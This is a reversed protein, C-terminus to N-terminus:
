KHGKYDRKKSRTKGGFSPKGSKSNGRDVSIRMRRGRLTARDIRKMQAESLEQDVQVVSFSPFIDIKGVASGQLGAEGTIAGVIGGPSVGDRRGVEIRYRKGKGTFDTRGKKRTSSPTAAEFADDMRDQAATSIEGLARPSAAQTLLAAAVDRYRLGEERKADLLALVADPITKQTSLASELVGTAKSLRVQEASPVQVKQMSSGTTREISRLKRVDRPTFFTLSQGERGARGTRGVRHVYQEDERPVEYNVVLGVRDVDIGRAAVDTAVLVDLYGRRLGDLLRERERQAVDGSIGAARFGRASLSLSVEEADKRTRVFVIAAGADSVALFRCLAEFRMKPQIVTYTQNITSVTSSPSSVEVRKAATLYKQAVKAIGPPMTASFLATLRQDPVSALIQDVEEAFGMRLMEDAEDLVLTNIHSLDLAGREILDITRGPTGVVIQSGQKLAQLQPAYSAGGYVTVFKLESRPGALAELAAATQLALERTPALVLAQPVALGPDMRTLLPLGFAATKGTGTQAIGIVDQGDVLLPISAQQIPTPHEFGLDSLIQLQSEELPLDSFRAQSEPDSSTM